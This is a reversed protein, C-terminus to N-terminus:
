IVGGNMEIELLKSNLDQLGLQEANIGLLALLLKSQSEVSKKQFLELHSFNLFKVIRFGDFVNFFRKKFSEFGSVNKKIEILEDLFGCSELFLSLAPHFSAFKVAIEMNTSNYYFEVFGFFEKLVLFAELSYVNLYGGNAVISTIEAGTGFPVRNSIRPSPFVVPSNIEVFKSNPIVKQIFYFDEGAQKKNMGGHKCYNEAEIGFCSGVTHVSYPFGSIKLAIKYYRLYVEYLAAAKLNEPPNNLDNLHTFGFIILNQKNIVFEEYAKVFYYNNVTCDADLCLILGNKISNDCFRQIAADMGLKRALGAGAHKKPLNSFNFTHIKMWQPLKSEILQIKEIGELNKQIVQFEASESSNFVFFVEISFVPAVCSMLSLLTLDPNEENISPIVVICRLNKDASKEFFVEPISQRKLYDALIKM